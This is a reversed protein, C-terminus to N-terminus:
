DRSAHGRKIPGGKIQGNLQVVFDRNKRVELKARSVRTERREIQALFGRAGQISWLIRRMMRSLSEALLANRRHREGAFRAVQMVTHINKQISGSISVEAPTECEIAKKELKM